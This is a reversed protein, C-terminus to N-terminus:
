EIIIGGKLSELRDRVEEMAGERVFARLEPDNILQRFAESNEEIWKLREDTSEAGMMAMLALQAKNREELSLPPNNESIEVKDFNEAM